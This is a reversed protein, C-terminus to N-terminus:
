RLLGASRLAGTIVGGVESTLDHLSPLSATTPAFAHSAASRRPEASAPPHPAPGAQASQREALGWSRAIELTSSVGVELLFPGATGCGGELDRGLPTGHGMGALQHLEVVPEGLGNHWVADRRRGSSRQGAVASEVGHVDRWQSILDDAVGAMVTSDQDGQWVSVRPWPGRHDSAARVADGLARAPLSRGNRMAAFAEPMNSASGYPLGAIIAGAAFTEPYAALMVNAMAGGASLGTVFVRRPDLDYDAVARRVMAHISAAEGAGRRTDEPQFWNFCLNPNNARTQEPCLLVFGCRDALETWGAGLAYAQATQTCGHLVVVLPAKAARGTPAHILMRLAGPNDGFLPVDCLGAGEADNASTRWKQAALAAVTEGLSAM